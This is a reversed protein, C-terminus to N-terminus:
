YGNEYAWNEIKDLVSDSIKEEGGNDKELYGMDRALGLSACAGSVTNEIDCYCRQESDEVFFELTVEYKGFQKTIKGEKM